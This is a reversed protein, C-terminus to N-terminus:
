SELGRIPTDLAKAARVPDFYERLFAIKGGAARLFVVYEQRYRRGTPKILGEAKVEAVAADPDACAYVQLDFFRFTDVVGLFWTVFRMVEERGSLRAPHGITPAYPLEWVLDDAILTQWQGNDAVLTEIHRQLLDSAITM